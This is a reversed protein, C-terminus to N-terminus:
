HQSALFAGARAGEDIAATFRELNEFAVFDVLFHDDQSNNNKDMYGYSVELHFNDKIKEPTSEQYFDVSYLKDFSNCVIVPYEILYEVSANKDPMLPPQGRMSVMANLAQNLAKYFPENEGMKNTNTAFLKAVKQSQNLYHHKFTYSNNATYCGYSCVLKEAKAKDKDAFWFVSHSPVFKCEIFLRIVLSGKEHDMFNKIPWAKEAILDIERAKSQSQDMYYPSVTIHWGDNSLWRAVKAHFNNGSNDILKTIEDPVSM